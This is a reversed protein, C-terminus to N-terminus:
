ATGVIKDIEHCMGGCILHVSLIKCFCQQEEDEICDAVNNCELIACFSSQQLYLYKYAGTHMIETLRLAHQQDCLSCCDRGEVM